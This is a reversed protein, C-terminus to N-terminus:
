LRAVGTKNETVFTERTISHIKLCIFKIIIIIINVLGHLEAPRINHIISCIRRVTSGLFSHSHHWAGVTVTIHLM